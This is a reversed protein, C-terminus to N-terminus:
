PSYISQTTIPQDSYNTEPSIHSFRGSPDVLWKTRLGLQTLSVIHKILIPDSWLPIQEMKSKQEYWAILSWRVRRNLMPSALLLVQYSAENETLRMVETLGIADEEVMRDSRVIM